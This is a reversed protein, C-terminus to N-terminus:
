IWPAILAVAKGATTIEKDYIDPIEIGFEEELAMVLEVLDLPDAGLDAAFDANMTVRDADVNLQRAVVKKVRRFVEDEEM